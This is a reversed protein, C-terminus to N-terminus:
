VDQWTPVGQSPVVTEVLSRVITASDYSFRLPVEEGLLHSRLLVDPENYGVMARLSTTGSFRPNIEFVSVKGQHLRCQINLPGRVGLADAIDECARTVEPYPGIEGHSIGSSVVLRSGLDTRETRNVRVSRVNLQSNLHRRVAISNLFRGNLDHLVGVTYEHDPTGVYEQILFTREDEDLRLYSALAKLEQADQAIYVDASGGSVDSPKVVAPFFDVTDLEDVKSATRFAPPEFGRDELFMATRIKDNCVSLVASPNIPLLIGAASFLDRDRDLRRLEPECGHFVAKIGLKSCVSLLAGSYEDSGAPPLVFARKVWNLQPCCPDMDAALVEFSPNAAHLLAKLIQEGHGGGGVATVLVPIKSTM